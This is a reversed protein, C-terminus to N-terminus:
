KRGHAEDVRTRFRAAWENMVVMADDWSSYDVWSFRNGSQTEVVAGIQQDSISDLLEAEMSVSGVPAGTIMGLPMNRGFGSKKMGTVAVRLRAVGPGPRNVVQYGDKLSAILAERMFTQIQLADQSKIKGGSIVEVDTGNVPCGDYYMQVPSIIFKDYKGLANDALYAFSDASRKKLKSYDSLFGVDQAKASPNGCAAPADTMARMEPMQSFDSAVPGCVMKLKVINGKIVMKMRGSGLEPTDFALGTMSTIPGMSSPSATYDTIRENLLQNGAMTCSRVRRDQTKLARAAANFGKLCDRIVALNKEEETPYNATLVSPTIVKEIDMRANTVKHHFFGRPKDNVYMFYKGDATLNDEGFSILTMWTRDALDQPGSISVTTQSTTPIEIGPYSLYSMSALVDGSTSVGLETGKFTALLQLPTPAEPADSGRAFWACGSSLSMTALLSSVVVFRLLTM